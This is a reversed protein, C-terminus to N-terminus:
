AAPRRRRAPRAPLAVQENGKEEGIEATTAIDAHVAREAADPDRARLAAILDGHNRRTGRALAGDAPSRQALVMIQPGNEMWLSEIIQFLRESDAARYIAFHFEQNVLVARRIDGAAMAHLMEQNLVEVRNLAERDILQAAHRAARGELLCRIERAQDRQRRNMLCVRM